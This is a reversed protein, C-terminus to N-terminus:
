FIAVANPPSAVGGPVNLPVSSLFFTWRKKERCYEALRELNFFEGIPMGWGALLWEHLTFNEGNQPEPMPLSEFAVADGAVASFQNEWLWRLMAETSEVGIFSFKSRNAIAEEEEATLKDYAAVLGSRVFLIDGSRFTINNERAIQKITELPIITSEFAKIPINHRAAYEAYDILVGRGVIGGSKVWADIGIDKTDRISEWTHGKFWCQYEHNGYHRFGDWQSSAQTNFTLVDDNVIRPGKNIIKHEVPQRKFNPYSLRNLEWDLPIRAGDRIEAAAALTTEPTLLNLMGLQDDAGFLGWANGKPGKPDITLEDFSPIKVPPAM